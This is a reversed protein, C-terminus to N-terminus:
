TAFHPGVGFVVHEVDGTKPAKQYGLQACSTLLATLLLSASWLLRKTHHM